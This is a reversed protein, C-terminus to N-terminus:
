EEPTEWMTAYAVRGSSVDFILTTTSYKVPLVYTIKGLRHGLRIAVIYSALFVLSLVNLILAAMGYWFLLQNGIAFFPKVINLAIMIVAVGSYLAFYKGSLPDVDRVKFGRTDLHCKRAVPWLMFCVRISILDYLIVAFFVIVERWVTPITERFPLLVEFGAYIAAITIVNAIKCFRLVKRM